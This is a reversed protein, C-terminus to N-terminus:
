NFMWTTMCTGAGIVFLAFIGLTVWARPPLNEPAEDAPDVFPREEHAGDAVPRDAHQPTM